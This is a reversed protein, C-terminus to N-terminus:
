AAPAIVALRTGCPVTEDVEVLIESLVGAAPAEVAATAKGTDIEVIEDGESVEDGVVKMWEVVTGETMGMGWQPLLVDVSM